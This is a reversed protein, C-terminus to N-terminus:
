PIWRYRSELQRQSVIFLRLAPCQTEAQCLLALATTMDAVKHALIRIRVWRQTLTFSLFGRQLFNM